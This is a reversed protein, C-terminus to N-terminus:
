IGTSFNQFGPKLDLNRDLEMGNASRIKAGEIIHLRHLPSSIIPFEERDEYKTKLRQIVLVLKRKVNYYKKKM